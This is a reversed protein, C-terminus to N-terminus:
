MSPGNNWYNYEPEPEQKEAKQKEMQERREKDRAERLPACEAWSKAWAAAMEEQEKIEEVTLEPPAHMEESTEPHNMMVALLADEYEIRERNPYRRANYEIMKYALLDLEEQLKELREVEQREAQEKAKRAAEERKLQTKFYGQHQQVPVLLRKIDQYIRDLQKKIRNAQEEWFTNKSAEFLSSYSVFRANIKKAKDKKEALIDIHARHDIREKLRAKKLADNAFDAWMERIAEIEERGSQGGDLSRTKEKFGEATLVRTSALLHAHHNREDGKRNPEHIAIDLAFGYREVLASSFRKVLKKRQIATLEAPLAIMFERAVTSNKRKEASEAENWLQERNSAWDPAHDPLAIFSAAVGKRRKYDFLENTRNDRLLAGSRYAAAAIASRGKARSLTSAILSYIAM